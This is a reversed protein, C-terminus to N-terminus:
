SLSIGVDQKIEVLDQVLLLNIFSSTSVVVYM